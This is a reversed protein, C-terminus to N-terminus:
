KGSFIEFLGSAWTSNIDPGSNDPVNAGGQASVSCVTLLFLFSVILVTKKM